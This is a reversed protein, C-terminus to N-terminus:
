FNKLKKGNFFYKKVEWILTTKKLILKMFNGFSISAFENPYGFRGRITSRM